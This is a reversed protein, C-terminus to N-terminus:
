IKYINKLGRKYQANDLGYGYVFEDNLVFGYYDAALLDDRAFQKKRILLSCVKISSPGCKELQEKLFETTKASDVIDDVLIIDRQFLNSDWKKLFELQGRENDKYSRVQCFDIQFDFDLKRVLDALFIFSGNLVGIIIPKKDVYDHNLNTALKAVMTAVEAASFLPKM